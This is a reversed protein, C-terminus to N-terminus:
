GEIYKEYMRRLRTQYLFLTGPQYNVEFPRGNFVEPVSAVLAEYHDRSGDIAHANHLNVWGLSQMQTVPALSAIQTSGIDLRELSPIGVLPTLDSVWAGGIDLNNLNSLGQLPSVDNVWTDRLVLHTLESHVALPRLDSIQTGSINLSVMAEVEALNAPLERLKSFPRLDIVRKNNQISDAVHVFAEDYADSAVKSQKQQLYGGFGVIGVILIILIRGFTKMQVLHGKENGLVYTNM